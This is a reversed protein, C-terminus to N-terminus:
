RRKQPPRAHRLRRVLRPHLPEHVAEDHAHQRECEFHDGFLQYGSVLNKRRRRCDSRNDAREDEACEGGHREHRRVRHEEITDHFHSDHQPGRQLVRERAVGNEPQHRHRENRQGQKEEVVTLLRQHPQHRARPGHEEAARGDDAQQRHPKAM